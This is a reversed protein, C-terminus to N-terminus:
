VQQFAPDFHKVQFYEPPYSMSSPASWPYSRSSQQQYLALSLLCIIRIQSSHSTLNTKFIAKNPEGCDTSLRAHKHISLIFQIKLYYGEQYSIQHILETYQIVAEYWHDGQVRRGLRGLSFM